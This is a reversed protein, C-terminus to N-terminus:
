SVVGYEIRTLVDDVQTAGADTDLLRLPVEGGLARNPKQLWRRAADEDELVEVARAVVRALRYLRDSEDPHFRAERKRRLLTRRPIGLVETLEGQSVGCREVVRELSRYPLGDRILELVASATPARKGLEEQGGLVDLATMAAM